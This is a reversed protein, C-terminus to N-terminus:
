FRAEVAVEVIDAEYDAADAGAEDYERRRFQFRISVAATVEWRIAVTADLARVPLTGRDRAFTGGVLLRVKSVLPIGGRVEAISSRVRSSAEFPALGAASRTLSDVALSVRHVTWSLDVTPGDGDGAGASLRLDEGRAELDGDGTRESWRGEAAARLGGENRYEVAARLRARGEPSLPTARDSSRAFRAEGRVSLDPAVEGRVGAYAGVSRVRDEVTPSSPLRLEEDRAELGGRLDFGGELRRRLGAYGSLEQQRVTEDLTTRTVVPVGGTDLRTVTRIEGDELLARREAGAELATRADLALSADLAAGHVARDRDGEVLSRRNSANGGLLSRRTEEVEVTRDLLAASARAEVSFRGDLLDVGGRVATVPGRLTSDDDFSLFDPVGPASAERSRDDDGEERRYSQRVGAHWGKGSLDAAIWGELSARDLDRAAPLVQGNELVTQRLEGERSLASAGAGLRLGPSARVEVSADASERLAEGGHVGGQGLFPREDRRADLTARWADGARVRARLTAHPDGLGRAAVEARTALPDGEATGAELGFSFLRAGSELGIEEDYLGEDGSVSRGGAEVSGRAWPRRPAAPPPAGGAGPAGPADGTGAGPIRRVPKPAGHLAHCASCRADKGEPALHEPAAYTEEEHCALCLEREAAAPGRAPNPVASRGRSRAHAGGDAHCTLCGDASEALGRHSFAAGFRPDNHCVLCTSTGLPEETGAPASALAAARAPVLAFAAAAAVAFGLLARSGSSRATRM